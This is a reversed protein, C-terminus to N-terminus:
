FYAICNLITSFQEYVNKATEVSTHIPTWERDCCAILDIILKRQSEGKSTNCQENPM